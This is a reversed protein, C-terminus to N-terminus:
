LFSSERMKGSLFSSSIPKVMLKAFGFDTKLKKAEKAKKAM